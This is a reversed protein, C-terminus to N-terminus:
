YTISDNILLKNYKNNNKLSIRGLVYWFIFPFTTEASICSSGVFAASFFLIITFELQLHKKRFSMLLGAAIIGIFITLGIYGLEAAVKQYESDQIAWNGYQRATGGYRGFGQGEITNLDIGGGTHELREDLHESDVGQAMRNRFYQGSTTNENFLVFITIFSAILTIIIYSVKFKNKAFFMLYVLTLVLSYITARFQTLLIVCATLMFLLFFKRRIKSNYNKSFINYLTYNAFYLAAYGIVYPTTWISSLRFVSMLVEESTGDYFNNIQKMKIAVYWGPTTYYFILGLVMAIVLPVTAKRLIYEIDYNVTKAIYYFLMPLVNTMFASYFLRLKHPYDIILSNALVWFLFLTVFVDLLNKSSFKGIKQIFLLTTALMLLQFTMPYIGLFCTCIGMIIYLWMFNSFLFHWIKEISTKM